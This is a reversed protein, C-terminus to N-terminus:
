RKALLTKIRSAAEHLRASDATLAMRIYGEGYQGFGNGPTCVVGAEDILAGVFSASTYGEPVSVWLYFTAQPAQVALGASRLGEVLTDRREQYVRKNDAVATQSELLAVIGAEQVAQFAGSDLNAKVSRLAEVVERRGAVFGIRWGTMNFTKSLSHFEVGVELAGPVQLFSLPQYGDYAIESYTNDQAVVIKYTQAFALLDEYFQRSAVAGTPNNPYNVFILKARSAIDAPIAALDPLFGHERLLPM